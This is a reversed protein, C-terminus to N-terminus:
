SNEASEVHDAWLEDMTDKVGWGVVDTMSRVANLRELM